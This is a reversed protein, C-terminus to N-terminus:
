AMLATNATQQNKNLGNNESKDYVDTKIKSHHLLKRAIGTESTVLKRFVKLSIEKIVDKGKAWTLYIHM